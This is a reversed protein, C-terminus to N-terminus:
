EGAKPDENYGIDSSLAVTMAFTVVANIGVANVKLGVTGYFIFKTNESFVVEIKVEEKSKELAHLTAYNGDTGEEYILSFELDGYDKIGDIYTRCKDKLSTTELKEPTAGMDPIDTVGSLEKGNVNVIIGMSALNKVDAM